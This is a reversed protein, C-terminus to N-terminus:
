IAVDDPRDASSLHSGLRQVARGLSPQSRTSLVFLRPTSRLPRAPEAPSEELVVHANTGGIGFSSVGARRPSAARPWPTHEACVAFPSRAFDIQPNPSRFHLTAPVAEHTLALTTKILGAIGAAADLHGINPKVAGIRCPQSRTASGFAQTLASIEIPDGLPTGTGHAEVYSVSEPTVGAIAMAEAIVAAQGEVGPATYGAKLAGDNNIASGRIVAHITDGAALADSLRKLVVVGAGSGTVTGAAEAAFARCHGDPSAIAGPQYQYGRMTPVQLSVGGALAGDCQYSWLMQCAVHVSVLSSSCATNVNLSPGRLNLKYSVRTPLFDKDNAIFLAYFNAATAVDKRPLINSLLYTNLGASAVVGFREGVTDPNHGAHEIAEWACELFLRHQPDMAEAERPSVGFFEADFLEVGDLWGHAPVYGPQSSVDPGVGAARLEDQSFFRVSEVGDRLNRWFAAPDAAGPFRCAMGVIAIPEPAGPETLETM